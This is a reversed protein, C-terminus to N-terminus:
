SCINKVHEMDIVEGNNAINVAIADIRLSEPLGRHSAKYFRAANILAKLKWYTIAEFPTGFDSSSRAKVEVFVLVDIDKNLTKPEIAIIDIEGNRIRFNRSIIKYGKKQLYSVAADEGIKGAKVNIYM